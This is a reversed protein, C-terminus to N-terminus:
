KKEKQAHRKLWEIFYNVSMRVTFMDNHPFKNGKQKYDDGYLSRCTRDMIYACADQLDQETLKM